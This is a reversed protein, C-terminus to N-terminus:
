NGRPATNRGANSLPAGFARRNEPTDPVPASAVVQVPIGQARAEDANIAVVDSPQGIPAEVHDDADTEPLVPNVTTPATPSTQPSTSQQAYAATSILGAAAATLLVKTLM